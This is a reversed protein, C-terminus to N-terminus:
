KALQVCILAPFLWVCVTSTKLKDKLCACRDSLHIYKKRQLSLFFCHKGDKSLWRKFFFFVCAVLWFLLCVSVCSMKIIPHRQTRTVGHWALQPRVRIDLPSGSTRWKKGARAHMGSSYSGCLGAGMGELLSLANIDKLYSVEAACQFFFVFCWLVTM